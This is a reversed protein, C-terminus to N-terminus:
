GQPAPSASIEFLAKDAYFARTTIRRGQAKLTPLISWRNKTDTWGAAGRPSLALLPGRLAALHRRDYVRLGAIRSLESLGRQTGDRRPDAVYILRGALSPPPAYSLELYDHSDDILIPLRAGANEELFRYTRRQDASSRSVTHERPVLAVPFAIVLAGLVATGVVPRAGELRYFALPLVALGIVAPLAYRATYAHTVTKAVVVSVLPILLFAGTAVVEHLPPGPMLRGGPGSRLGVYAALVLLAAGVLALERATVAVGAALRALVLGGLPVFVAAGLLLGARTRDELWRGAPSVVLLAVAAVVIVLLIVDRERLPGRLTTHFLFAFFGAPDHWSPTAWFASSYSRAARVLQVFAAFPLLAGAFALWVAVDVRRAVLTRTLEGLGLPVLLLVAYYHSSSALVLSLALCVLAAGRHVGETALQWCFLALAAFALVLAYARAESAYYYAGTLTPLAMAMLGHLVNTRRRVFAYLCLCFLLFAVIEPLRISFRGVGFVGFSARTLLYSLPPAQDAGTELARWLDAVSSVRSFYYTYLEDNWLPKRTAIVSTEAFYLAAFAAVPIAGRAVARAVWRSLPRRRRVPPAAEAVEQELVPPRM